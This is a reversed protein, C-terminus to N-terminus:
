ILRHEVQRLVEKDFGTLDVGANSLFNKAVGDGNYDAFEIDNIFIRRGTTDLSYVVPIKDIKISLPSDKVMIFKGDEKVYHSGAVTVGKYDHIEDSAKFQFVGTVEGGKTDDGLQINKIEKTSGNAMQILTSPDFCYNGENYGSGSSYGSGAQNAGGGKNSDRAQDREIAAQQQKAQRRSIEQAKAAAAIQLDRAKKANTAAKKQKNLKDIRFAEKAQFAELEEQSKEYQSKQFDTLNNIDFVGDITGRKEMKEQYKGLQDAYSNTGFGSVVNQGRLVSDPGYKALGSNPDRGIMMKGDVSMENLFDIEGQLSPNYNGARPNLPNRAAAFRGILTNDMLNAILGKGQEVGPFASFKDVVSTGFNKGAQVIGGLFSNPDLPKGQPRNYPDLTQIGGGGGGGQNQYQNIGSNIIGQSVNTTPTTTTTNTTPTTTGTSSGGFLDLYQQLTYNSQLTPNQNYVNTLNQPSM